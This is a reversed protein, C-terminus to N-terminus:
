GLFILIMLSVLISAIVGEHVVSEIANRVFVSQDFDVNIELGKPASEKIIPIMDKAAEVVTLSSADAKKLISLYAARSRDVRVVNYQDAYSDSAKGVDAITIM